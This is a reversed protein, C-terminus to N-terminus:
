IHVRAAVGLSINEPEVTHNADKCTELEFYLEHAPFIWAIHSEYFFRNRNAIKEVLFNWFRKKDRIFKIRKKRVKFCVKKRFWFQKGLFTQPDFYDFSESTLHHIHTLDRYSGYYSFHPTWIRVTARNQSVRYIETMLKVLDAVHEVIHRLLIGRCSDDRIPLFSADAIIDVGELKRLDIGVSNRHKLSGCGIDLTTM